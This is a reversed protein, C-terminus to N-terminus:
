PQKAKACDVIVQKKSDLPYKEGKELSFESWVLRPPAFTGGGAYPRELHGGGVKCAKDQPDQYIFYFHRYGFMKTPIGLDNKYIGYEEADNKLFRFRWVQPVGYAAKIMQLIQANSTASYGPGQPMSFFKPLGLSKANQAGQRSLYSQANDEAIKRNEESADFAEALSKRTAKTYDVWFDSSVEEGKNGNQDLLTIEATLKVKQGAFEESTFFGRFMAGLDSQIPYNAAAQADPNLVFDFVKQDFEHPYVKRLANGYTRIM